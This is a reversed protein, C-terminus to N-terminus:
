KIEVIESVSVSIAVAQSSSSDEPNLTNNKLDPLKKINILLIHIYSHAPIKFNPYASMKHPLFLACKFHESAISDFGCKKSTDLENFMCIAESSIITFQETAFPKIEEVILVTLVARKVLISNM